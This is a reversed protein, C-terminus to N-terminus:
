KCAFHKYSRKFDEVTKTHKAKNCGICCSVCNSEIYGVDNDMRDIGNYVYESSWSRVVQRPPKGCYYCDQSTFVRVQERTLEWDRGHQKASQRYTCYLVNFASEGGPLPRFCTPLCGCSKTSGNRLNSGTTVTENGCDCKCLWTAQRHRTIGARDMVLLKGYRNGIEDVVM